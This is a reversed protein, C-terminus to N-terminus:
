RNDKILTATAIRTLPPTGGIGTVTFLYTGQKASSSVTVGLTSSNGAAPNPTFNGTAGSPLGTISLTVASTFGGTRTITVTYTAIGGARPVTVSSPSISLSYDSAPTPTPTPTPTSTATPTPTSTATPTPTSTAMPTSTPIPSVTPTPTATPTPTPTPAVEPLLEWFGRGFTAARIRSSDPAIYFDTVSVLPMGAGFRSWSAGTDTSRYAGLQTGAYLATSDNPDPVITNVAVGTPFGPADDLATWNAGFNTSRWLHSRTPDAAASAVYVTNPDAADFSIYGFGASPTTINPPSTALTWSTGGDSTLFVRGGSAVLGIMNPNTKAVGINRLYVNPLLGNTGLAVWSRGYDTSKYVKFNTHTFVTNGDTGGRWPAFKPYVAALASNGAESIGTAGIFNQGGDTSTYIQSYQSSAIMKSGSLPHVLSAFGDAGITQNFTSTNGARVRTGNDQMGGIVADPAAESSGVSYLLHSVLGINYKDTWTVGNDNSMFIGGDTGVYLNGNRDTAGTHFDCHVYPLGSMALWDSMPTYTPRNSLASDARAVTFRGGFFVTNQDNKAALVMQNFNGQGNLLAKPVGVYNHLTYTVNSATANLATWTRGGDTSRFFDALDNADAPNPIAAEAYVVSRNLPSSGVTVRGIGTAKTLGSARTWTAGDNTSYFVQGDTTGSMASHNAELSLVFNTGGGWALTWCYPATESGTALPVITFTAGRDTSRFLGKDTAVMVISSNTDAVRIDSIKTSDGLYIIPEWTAGADTSRTFGIGTGSFADGLGLYLTSPSVPDIALAGCALSGLTETIPRWSPQAGTIADTTKWVGGGSMAVYLVDANTPDPVIAVVRGADTKNLTINGNKLFNAKNPGINVWTTGPVVTDGGPLMAANRQRERAAAENLWKLYTPNLGTEDGDREARMRMNPDDAEPQPQSLQPDPPGNQQTRALGLLPLACVSRNRKGDVLLGISNGQNNNLAVLDQARLDTLGSMSIM